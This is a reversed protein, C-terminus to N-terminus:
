EGSEDNSEWYEKGLFARFNGVFKPPLPKVVITLNLSASHGAPDTATIRVTKTEEAKSTPVGTVSGSSTSFKLGKPLTGSMKYKVPLCAANMVFSIGEEIECGAYAVMTVSSGDSEDISVSKGSSGMWCMDCVVDEAKYAEISKFVAEVHTKRDYSSIYRLPWNSVKLTTDSSLYYGNPNRWGIFVHGKAAKATLTVSKGGTDRGDKPSATVTGGEESYTEGGDAGITMVDAVYTQIFTLYSNLGIAAGTDASITVKTKDSSARWFPDLSRMTVSYTGKTLLATDDMNYWTTGGDPSWQILDFDPIVDHGADDVAGYFAYSVVSLRGCKEPNVYTATFTLNAEPMVFETSSEGVQFEPCLLTTASAPSVTWRQFELEKGGKEVCSPAELICHAGPLVTMPKTGDTEGFDYNGDDCFAYAGATKVTITYAKIWHAYLTPTKPNAYITFDM